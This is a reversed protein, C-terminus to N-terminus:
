RPIPAGAVPANTAVVNPGVARAFYKQRRLTNQIDWISSGAPVVLSHVRVPAGDGRVAIRMRKKGGVRDRRHPVKEGRRVGTKGVNRRRKKGARRRKKRAAM